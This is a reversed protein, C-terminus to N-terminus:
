PEMWNEIRLDSIRSFIADSSVLTADIALAHAAIMLDLAAVSTGAAELSARLAGYIPSIFQDWPLIEINRLFEHVLQALNTAAPNKSVGYHLEAATVSSIALSTLPVAACRSRLPERQRLAASAANTDLLFLRTM